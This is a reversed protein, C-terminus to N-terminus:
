LESKSVSLDMPEDEYELMDFQLIRQAGQLVSTPYVEAITTNISCSTSPLDVATSPSDVATSPLNVSEAEKKKTMVMKNEEVKLLKYYGRREKAKQWVDWAKSYPFEKVSPAEINLNLLSEVSAVNLSARSTTKISNYASIARECNVSTPTVTVAITALKALNPFSIQNPFIHIKYFQAMSMNSCTKIVRKLVNWETTIDHRQEELQYHEMLEQIQSNGYEVEEELLAQPYHAPDFVSLAFMIGSDPFTNRLRSCVETIFLSCTKAATTREKESDKIDHGKLTFETDTCTAPIERKLEQLKPGDSVLLDELAAVSAKIQTIATSYQLDQKQLTKSLIGLIGIADALFATLYVFKYTAMQKSVGHLAAGGEATREGAAEYVASIVSSLCVSLAQVSDNIIAM